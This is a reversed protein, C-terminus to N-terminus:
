VSIQSDSFELWQSKNCKLKCLYLYAFLSIASLIFLLATFMVLLNIQLYYSLFNCGCASGTNILTIFAMAAAAKNQTINMARSYFIPTLIGVSFIYGCLLLVILNLSVSHTWVLLLLVFAITTCLTLGTGASAYFGFKNLISSSLAKGAMSSLATASSLLTIISYSLHFQHLYLLSSFIYYLSVTSAILGICFCTALLEKQCIAKKTSLWWDHIVASNNLKKESEPFSRSFCYLYAINCVIIFLFMARWNFFSLLLSSSAFAIVTAFSSLISTIALFFTVKKSSTLEEKKQYGDKILCRSNILLAGVGLGQIFCSFMLMADSTSFIILLNGSIITSVGILISKKRGFHDSIFGHFLLSVVSGATFFVILGQLNHVSTHFNKAMVPIALPLMNGILTMILLLATSNAIIKYKAFFSM